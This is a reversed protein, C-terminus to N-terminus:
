TRTMPASCSHGSLVPVELGTSHRNIGGDVEHKHTKAHLMGTTLLGVVMVGFLVMRMMEFMEFSRPGVSSSIRRCTADAGFCNSACPATENSVPTLELYVTSSHLCM